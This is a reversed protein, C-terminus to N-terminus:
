PISSTYRFSHSEKSEKFYSLDEQDLPEQKNTPLEELNNGPIM